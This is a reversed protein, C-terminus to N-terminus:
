DKQLLKQVFDAGETSINSWAAGNYSPETEKIKQFITEISNATFPLKGTLLLYTMVGLSWLDCKSGYSNKLVEPAVYYPTGVLETLKKKGTPDFPGATGFDALKMNKVDMDDELLVNQPKLDRHVIGKDHYYGIVILMQKILM